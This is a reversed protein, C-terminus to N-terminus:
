EGWDGGLRIQSLSKTYASKELSSNNAIIKEIFNLLLASFYFYIGFSV